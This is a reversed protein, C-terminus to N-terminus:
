TARDFDLGSCWAGAAAPRTWRQGGAGGMWGAVQAPGGVMGGAGAGSASAASFAATINGNGDESPPPLLEALLMRAAANASASLPPFAARTATAM